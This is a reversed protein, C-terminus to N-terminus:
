KVISITCNEFQCGQFSIMEKREASHKRPNKNPGAKNEMEKLRAQKGTLGEITEFSTGEEQIPM